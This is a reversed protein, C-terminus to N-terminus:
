QAEFDALAQELMRAQVRQNASLEPGVGSNLLDVTAYNAMEEVFSKVSAEVSSVEELLHRESQAQARRELDQTAEDRLKQMQQEEVGEDAKDDVNTSDTSTAAMETQELTQTQETQETRNVGMSNNLIAVSWGTTRQSADADKLQLERQSTEEQSERAEAEAIASELAAASSVDSSFEGKDSDQNFADQESDAELTQRHHAEKEAVFEHLDRDLNQEFDDEAGSTLARAAVKKRAYAGIRGEVPLLCLALLALLAPWM